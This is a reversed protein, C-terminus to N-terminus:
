CSIYPECEAGNIIVTHIDAAQLKQATPFVAGGLGVIGAQHIKARLLEPTELQYSVCPEANMAEDLGDTEIIICTDSLGSPHAIPRSTIEKVNGSSAAHVPIGLSDSATAIVQGRLVYEGPQVIPRAYYDSRQLLPYVLESPIPAAIIDTPQKHADLVLGGSFKGLKTM